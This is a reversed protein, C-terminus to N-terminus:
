AGILAKIKTYAHRHELEAQLMEIELRACSARLNPDKADYKVAVSRVTDAMQKTM